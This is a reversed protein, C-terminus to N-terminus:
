WIATSASPNWPKVAGNATLRPLLVAMAVSGDGNALVDHDALLLAAVRRSLPNVVVSVASSM